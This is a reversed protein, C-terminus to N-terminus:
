TVDDFTGGFFDGDGFSGGFIRLRYWTFSCVYGDWVGLVIGMGFDDGLLFVM